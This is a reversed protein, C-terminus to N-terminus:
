LNVASPVTVFLYGGPKLRELLDNLLERPSDHLHEIVDHLMILDFIQGVGALAKSGEGKYITLGAARAFEGVKQRFDDNEFLPNQFDDAVACRYGLMQLIVTKDGIGGGFDLIESGPPLLRQVTTVVHQYAGRHREVWGTSWPVFGHLPLHESVYDLAKDFEM